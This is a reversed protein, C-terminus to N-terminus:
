VGAAVLGWRLPQYIDRTWWEKLHREGLLVPGLWCVMYAFAAAAMFWFVYNDVWDLVTMTWSPWHLASFVYWLCAILMVLEVAIAAALSGLTMAKRRSKASGNREAMFSNIGHVMLVMILVATLLLTVVDKTFEFLAITVEAAALAFWVLTAIRKTWLRRQRLAETAAAAGLVICLVAGAKAELNSWYMLPFNEMLFHKMGAGENPRVTQM